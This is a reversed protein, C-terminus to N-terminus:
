GKGVSNSKEIFITITDYFSGARPFSKGFIGIGFLTVLESRRYKSIM